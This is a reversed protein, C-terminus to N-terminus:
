WRRRDSFGTDAAAHSPNEPFSGLINGHSIFREGLLKYRDVFNQRKKTLENARCSVIRNRAYDASGFSNGNNAVSNTMISSHDSGTGYERQTREM